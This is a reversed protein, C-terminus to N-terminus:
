GLIVDIYRQAKKIAREVGHPDEFSHQGLLRSLLHPNESEVCVRGENAGSPQKILYGRYAVEVTEMTDGESESQRCSKVPRARATLNTVLWGSASESNRPRSLRDGRCRVLPARRTSARNLIRVAPRLEPEQDGEHGLGPYVFEDVGGPSHMECSPLKNWWRWLGVASASKANRRCGAQPYGGRRRSSRSRDM